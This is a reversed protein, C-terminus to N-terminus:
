RKTQIDIRMRAVSLFTETAQVSPCKVNAYSCFVCCDGQKPRLLARCNECEHFYECALASMAMEKKYGCNPCTLIAMDLM